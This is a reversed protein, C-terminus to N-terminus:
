EMTLILVGQGTHEGGAPHGTTSLTSTITLPTAGKKLPVSVGTNALLTDNIKLTSEIGGGMPLRNDILGALFLKAKIRESCSISIQQRAVSGDVREMALYGHDLTISDQMSCRGSPPPALGCVSGPLLSAGSDMDIFKTSWFLSVCESKIAPGSHETKGNYPLSLRVNVLYPSYGGNIDSPSTKLCLGLEGMTQASALCPTGRVSWQTVTKGSKKAKTHVHSIAVYCSESGYCPNPTADAYDWQLISFDYIYTYKDDALTVKKIVSYIAGHSAVPLALLLPAFLTSVCYLHRWNINSMTLNACRQPPSCRMM